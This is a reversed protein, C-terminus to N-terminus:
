NEKINIYIIWLAGLLLVIYSSWLSDTCSLSKARTLSIDSRDFTYVWISGAALYNQRALPSFALSGRHSSSFWYWGQTHLAIEIQVERHRILRGNNLTRSRFYNFHEIWKIKVGNVCSDFITSSWNEVRTHCPKLLYLVLIRCIDGPLAYHPGTPPDYTTYEQVM